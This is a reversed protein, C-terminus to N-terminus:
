KHYAIFRYTILSTRSLLGDKNDKFIVFGLVLPGASHMVDDIM